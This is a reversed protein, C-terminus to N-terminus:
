SVLEKLLRVVELPDPGAPIIDLTTVGSERYVDIRDRIYGSDGVLTLAEVLDDPIAAQAADKQGSLYLDQIEDAASEYGYKRLLSNYFNKGKAGMGGFYLAMTPRAMDRITPAVDMPCMCALGGAIVDLPGLAPSRKAAGAALADGWVVAAKEPHYFVPMWGNAVEATLEVNKPGLSAVYIPIDARLPENILKLAKGLGTGQDPPLPITYDHGDHEVVERRWVQRCIDIIERTRGVPRTYPIGHWGEIVQPGSAGLGLNFRGDSLADLSAATMALLTPTRSYIPFIGSGIEITTTVAALYGLQSVADYTYAEPIWVKDIGAAELGQVQSAVKKPDGGYNLLTSLNM